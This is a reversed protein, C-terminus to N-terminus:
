IRRTDWNYFIRLMLNSVIIASYLFWEFILQFIVDYHRKFCAIYCQILPFHRCLVRDDTRCPQLPEFCRNNGMDPAVSDGDMHWCPVRFQVSCRQGEPFCPPQRWVKCALRFVFMCLFTLLLIRVPVIPLSLLSLVPSAISFKIRKVASKIPLVKMSDSSSFYQLNPMTASCSTHQLHDKTRVNLPVWVM